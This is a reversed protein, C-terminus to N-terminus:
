VRQVEGAWQVYRGVERVKRADLSRVDSRTHAAPLAHRAQILAHAGEARALLLMDFGLFGGFARQSLRL